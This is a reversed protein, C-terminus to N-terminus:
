QQAQLLASVPALAVDRARDELGWLLLATVTDPRLRGVMVVGGESDAKLVAYNLFRRIVGPKEGNADFDRFVAASPVGEKAALKQATNLGKPFLVLGHGSDRLIETVQASMNRSQQIGGGPTEMVAVAEPVRAMLSQMAVEVDGPAAGDPLSVMALVEFGAARYIAMRDEAQPLSTDVAFSLQYPFTSLAEIGVSSDPDDILIISMKAKNEPAEFPVSYRRVPPETSIEQGTEPEAAPAERGADQTTPRRVTAGTDRNILSGAPKGIRIATEEQQEASAPEVVDDRPRIVTPADPEPAPEAETAESETQAENVAAQSATDSEDGGQPAQPEEITVAVDPAQPEPKAEPEVSIVLETEDKKESVQAADVPEEDVQPTAPVAPADSQVEPGAGATESAGGFATQPTEASPARPQAPDTSISLDGEEEPAAPAEAVEVPSVPSEEGVAVQVPASESPAALEGQPVGAEPVAAPTTDSDDLAALDDVAPATVRPVQAAEPQPETAPLEAEEDKRAQNFESGAPVELATAEPKPPDPPDVILSLVAAGGVAVVGGILIGSLFGRAM